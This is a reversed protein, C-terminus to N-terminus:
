DWGMKKAEKKKQYYKQHSETYTTDHQYKDWHLIKIVYGRVGHIETIEYDIKEVEKFKKLIPELDQSTITKLQLRQALKELPIGMKQGNEYKGLYIEGDHPKALLLLGIWIYREIETLEEPTSDTLMSEWIKIWSGTRKKGNSM